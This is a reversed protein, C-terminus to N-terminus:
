SEDSEAARRQLWEDVFRTHFHVEHFAEDEILERQIPITTRIGEIVFEELAWRLRRIAHGRDLGTVILKGVLSDYYPQVTANEHVASDIRIGPGGPAHYGTIRGPWPLFSYPDEANIRVEISHGTVKVDSQKLALKEGAAMRIQLQVLDIGTVQETVPHEVQIRPNVELFFFEDGQVLFECTGV